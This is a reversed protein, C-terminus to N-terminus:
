KVWFVNLSSPRGHEEYTKNTYQRWNEEYAVESMCYLDPDDSMEEPATFRNLTSAKDFMTFAIGNTWFGSGSSFVVDLLHASMGGANLVRDIDNCIPVFQKEDEVHELASISFVLDFYNDPLEENFNGMYDQVVKYPYTRSELNTPGQGLGEFKDINWCEYSRSFHRLIRSSGGGVELLRSGEPIFGKILMMVLLDQYSKLPTNDIDVREGYLDIDLGEFNVWHSRRAYTWYDINEKFESIDM